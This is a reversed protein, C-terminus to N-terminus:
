ISNRNKNKKYFRYLMIIISILILSILISGIILGISIGKAIEIRIDVYDSNTGDIHWIYINGDVEDANNFYVENDTEIKIDITDTYLCYFAGQLNIYYNESFDLQPYEFCSNISNAKKFNEENYTYKMEIQFYNDYEAVKKKYFKDSNVLSATKSEIFPTIQDDYDIEVDIEEPNISPIISKPIVVNINEKFKNNTIKLTYESSCGTLLIILIFILIKKIRM